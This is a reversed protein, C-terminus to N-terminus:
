ISSYYVERETNTWDVDQFPKKRLLSSTFNYLHLPFFRQMFWKLCNPEFHSLMPIGRWTRVSCSNNQKQNAHDRFEYVFFVSKDENKMNNLYWIEEAPGMFHKRGRIEGSIIYLM